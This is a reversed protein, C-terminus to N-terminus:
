LKGSIRDECYKSLSGLAYLPLSLINNELGYNKLSARIALKPLYKERYINLSKAKVNDASKVEVPFIESSIQKVFDVEANGTPNTWYACPNDDLSLEQMAYQEAFAGKTQVFLSNGEIITKADLNSLAGLLGIDLLYLKFIDINEHASLPLQPTETNYNKLILGCDVLWQIAVEFDKARAGSRIASYIFKKNEKALQSPINQWVMRIRPIHKDPAHKAFDSEYSTIIDKQIQRVKFVDRSDAFESVAAPMGGVFMYYKLLEILKDHFMRLVDWNGNKLAELYQTKGNAQLFEYFSMPRLTLFNVKGVPFSENPKLSMGLLSGAAMIHYQPADENFYKLSNLGREASQIEDLIILTDDPNIKEGALIELTSIIRAVNLDPKFLEKLNDENDFNVYVTKKYAKKGFEKMLWTKGVQRAGRLILPKRNKNNKWAILDELKDRYMDTIKNNASFQPCFATIDICKKRHFYAINLM